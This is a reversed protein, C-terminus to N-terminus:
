DPEGCDTHLVPTSLLIDQEYQNLWRRSFEGFPVPKGFYYGQAITCGAQKLFVAQMETEIGECLVTMGLESATEIIGEILIRKCPLISAQDLFSKDMKITDLGIQCLLNVSSYGIGFDDLSIKFGADRLTRTVDIVANIDYIVSSETIEIDLLNTPIHYRACIALLKDPLSRDMFHNHSFNCSCPYVKKGEDMLRRLIQCVEEFITLDLQIIFNNKEFLPIFEVPSILGKQPHVWRTLAEAGVIKGTAMSVKPQFYPVFQGAALASNMQQEIDRNLRIREILKDDFFTYTNYSASRESAQAYHAYNVATNISDGTKILYVGCSFSIHSNLGIENFGSLQRDLAEIRKKLAKDPGSSLLLVFHDATIRSVLEGKTEDIFANLRDAVSCLLFDGKSYDHIDNIHKFNNINIYVLAFSDAGKELSQKALENFKVLNPLRTVQDFYLLDAIRRHSRNRTVIIFSFIGVTIVLIVSFIYFARAPKERILTFLDTNPREATNAIVFEQLKFSRLQRIYQNFASIVDPDTDASFAVAFEVTYDTLERSTISSYQPWSLFSNASYINVYAADIEGSALADLLEHPSKRIITRISPYNHSLDEIFRKNMIHSFGVKEIPQTKNRDKRMLMAVPIQLFPISVKLHGTDALENNLVIFAISNAQGSYVQKVAEEHSPVEVYRVDLGTSASISAFLDVIIGHPVSDTLYALPRWGPVFAVNMTKMRDLADRETRTLIIRNSESFGYHKEYLRYDFFRDHSKIQSQARNLEDLIDPANKRVAYFHPKPAFSLLIQLGHVKNMGSSLLIDFEGKKFANKQTDLDTYEKLRFKMHHERSYKKLSEIDQSGKLVGVSLGTYENLNKKIFREDNPRALLFVSNQFSELQAFNFLKQRQLTREMGGLIDIEGKKLMEVCDNWSAVVFQYKWNNHQAIKTLYDYDYGSFTGDKSVENYGPIPPFGVRVTRGSSNGAFAQSVLCLFLLAISLFRRM